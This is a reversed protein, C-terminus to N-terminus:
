CLKQWRARSARQAQEMLDGLEASREKETAGPHEHDYNNMGGGIIRDVIDGASEEDNRAKHQYPDEFAVYDGTKGDNPGSTLRTAPELGALLSGGNLHSDQKSSIEQSEKPGAISLGDIHAM